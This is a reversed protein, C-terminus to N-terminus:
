DREILRGGTFKARGSDRRDAGDLMGDGTAWHRRCLGEFDEAVLLLQRAHRLDLLTDEDGVLEEERAVDPVLHLKVQRENALLDGEELVDLFDELVHLLQVVVAGGLELM